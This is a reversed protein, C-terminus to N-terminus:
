WDGYITQNIENLIERNNKSVEALLSHNDLLAQRHIAKVTVGLVSHTDVVPKPGRHMHIEFSGDLLQIRGDWVKGTLQVELSLDPYDERLHKTAPSPEWQSHSAWWDGDLGM